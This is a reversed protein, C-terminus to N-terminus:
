LIDEYDAYKHIRLSCGRGKFLRTFFNNETYKMQNNYKSRTYYNYLKECYDDNFDRYIERKDDVLIYRQKRDGKWFHTLHEMKLDVIIYPYIYSHTFFSSTFDIELEELLLFPLPLGDRALQEKHKQHNNVEIYLHTNYVANEIHFYTSNRHIDKKDLKFTYFPKLNLIPFELMRNITDRLSGLEFTQLNIDYMSNSSPNNFIHTFIYQDIKDVTTSDLIKRCEKKDQRKKKYMDLITTLERKANMRDSLFTM